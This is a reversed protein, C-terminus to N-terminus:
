GAEGPIDRMLEAFMEETVLEGRLKQLEEETMTHKVCIWCFTEIEDTEYAEKPYVLLTKKNGEVLWTEKHAVSVDCIPNGWQRITEYHEINEDIYGERCVGKLQYSGVLFYEGKFQLGRYKIYAEKAYMRMDFGYTNYLVFTRNSFQMKDEFLVTAREDVQVINDEPRNNYYDSVLEGDKSRQFRELQEKTVLLGWRREFEEIDETFFQTVGDCIPNCNNDYLTIKYM